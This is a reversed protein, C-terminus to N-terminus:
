WNTDMSGIDGVQVGDSDRKTATIDRAYDAQSNAVADDQDTSYLDIEGEAIQDLLKEASARISEPWESETAEEQHYNQRLILYHSLEFTVRKILDPVPDFPVTYRQQCRGDVQAQADTIFTEEWTEAVCGAPRLDDLDGIRADMYDYDIYAAM